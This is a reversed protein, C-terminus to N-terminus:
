RRKGKGGKKNAKEKRLKARTDKKLRPDVIKTGKEHRTRLGKKFNRSVVYKKETKMKGREQRYVKDIQKLKSNESIDSQSAIAQAKSKAKDFAKAIRMKKKAKAEAVKKSPRANYEKIKQKEAAVEEKTIPLNPRFHRQEDDRFWTPLAGPEEGFSVYRNYTSDIIELRRKKRLMVKALAVTEAIDDSDYDQIQEVPVEEFGAKERSRKKLKKKGNIDNDSDDSDEDSEAIAESEPGKASDASKEEKKEKLNMKSLPNEFKL